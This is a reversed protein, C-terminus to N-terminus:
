WATDAGPEVALSRERLPELRRRGDRRERRVVIREPAMRARSRAARQDALHQAAVPRSAARAAPAGRERAIGLLRRELVRHQIGRDARAREPRVLDVRAKAHPEGLRQGERALAPQAALHREGLGLRARLFELLRPKLERRRRREQEVLVVQRRARELAVRAVLGEDLLERLHRERAVLGAAGRLLVRQEGLRLQRVQQV